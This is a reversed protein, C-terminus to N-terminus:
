AAVNNLTQNFAAEIDCPLIMIYDEQLPPTPSDQLKHLRVAQAKVTDEFIQRIARANGFKEDRKLNALENELTTISENNVKFGEANFLSTAIQVLEPNAYDQFIVSRGFRSKLGANHDLFQEMENPYGALIVVVKERYDEILKVLTDVCEIGYQDNPSNILSYAEDVFFVGGQASEFKERTKIATQGTFGAVLDSRDVEVVHGSPLVGLDKLIEGVLRAVTTKGTGPNGSFIM